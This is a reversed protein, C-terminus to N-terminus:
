TDSSHSHTKQDVPVVLIFSENCFLNQLFV